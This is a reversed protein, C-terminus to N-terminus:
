SKIVKVCSLYRTSVRFLQKEENKLIALPVFRWFLLIVRRVIEAPRKRGNDEKVVLLRCRFVRRKIGMNEIDSDERAAKSLM